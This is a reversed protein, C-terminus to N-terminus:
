KNIRKQGEFLKIRIAEPTSKVLTKRAAKTPLSGLLVFICQHFSEIQESKPDKRTLAALLINIFNVGPRQIILKDREKDKNPL